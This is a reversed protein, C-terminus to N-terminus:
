EEFRFILEGPKAYGLRSRIVKEVYAPDTRLRQLITEQQQLHATAEELRRRNELNMTRLRVYEQRTDIFFLAVVAALGAFLLVFVSFLLRRSNV